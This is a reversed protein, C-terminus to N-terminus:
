SDYKGFRVDHEASCDNCCGECAMDDNQVYMEYENCLKVTGGFSQAELQNIRDGASEIALSSYLSYRKNIGLICYGPMLGFQLADELVYVVMAKIIRGTYEFGTLEPNYERLILIDGVNFKEERDNKRLDFTKIEADIDNFYKPLTKLSHNCYSLTKDIPMFAMETDKDIM